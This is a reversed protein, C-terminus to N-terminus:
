SLLIIETGAPRVAALECTLVEVPAGGRNTLVTVAWTYTWASDALPEDISSHGVRFPSYNTIAIDFGLAAALDLFYRRSQGGGGIFRSRVQDRRQDFTPSDGACPDPLGLTAEWEPLLASQPSGPLSGDLLVSAAADIREFTAGIAGLLTNQVGDPDDFWARGRPLLARAAAAYDAGHYRATGVPAPPAPLQAIPLDPLPVPPPNAPTPSPSPSPTPTLTPSPNPVPSPNPNPTVIPGGGGDADSRDMTM